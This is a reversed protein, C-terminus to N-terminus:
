KIYEEIFGSLVWLLYVMVLGAVFFMFMILADVRNLFGYIFFVIFSLLFVFILIRKM